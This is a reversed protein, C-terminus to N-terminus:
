TEILRILREQCQARWKRLFKLQGLAQVAEEACAGQGGGEEFDPFRATWSDMAAQVAALCAQIEKQSAIAEKAILARALASEAARSKAVVADARSTAEGIRLFLDMVESDVPSGRDPEIGRLALWHELRSVPDTLIGRAQHLDVSEADSALTRWATEIEASDLLLSEPLGLAAFHNPM